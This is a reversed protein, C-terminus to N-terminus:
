FKCNPKFWVECTQWLWVRIFFSYLVQVPTDYIARWVWAHTFIVCNAIVYDQRSGAATTNEWVHLGHMYFQTFMFVHMCVHLCQLVRACLRVCKCGGWRGGADQWNQCWQRNGPIWQLLPPSQIRIHRGESPAARRRQGGWPNAGWVRGMWEETAGRTFAQVDGQLGPHVTVAAGGLSRLLFLPLPPTLKVPDHMDCTVTSFSVAAYYVTADSSLWPNM